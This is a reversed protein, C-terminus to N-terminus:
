VHARGIEIAFPDMTMHAFQFHLIANAGYFGAFGLIMGGVAILLYLFSTRQGNKNAGIAALLVPASAGVGIGLVMPFAAGFGIAGTTSLAQLVGVAASASQLLAAFAIGFLTGLLPNTLTTMIQIFAPNSRLPSVAASMTSMGTMLVAFGLMITGLHTYVDKKGFMKLLIGVSRFLM